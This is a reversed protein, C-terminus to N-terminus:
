FQNCDEFKDDPMKITNLVDQRNVLLRKAVSEPYPETFTSEWGYKREFEERTSYIRRTCEDYCLKCEKNMAQTPRDKLTKLIIGRPDEEDKNREVWFMRHCLNAIESAGSIDYSNAGNQMANPKKPHAVIDTKVKFGNTFSMVKVIFDKQVDWKSKKSTEDLELCMLNDILFVECGFRRYAIEMLKILDDGSAVLGDEPAFTIIKERYYEKIKKVANKHVSFGKKGGDNDWVLTHNKGALSSMIWDLLQEGSLEGSFVFVKQGNEVASIVSIQNALTSKGSGTFGSYITLCPFVNGFIIKDLEELGTSVKKMDQVNAPEFDMLYKLNKVPIEEARNILEIIREKGIALLINNADTKRLNKVKFQEYFNEVLDEDDITPKVIKCRYEGIRPVTKELGEQGASDNDFWLIITNFNELFDYNFEIWSTSTAGDPISVVNTYGSEIVALTDPMGETIVLPKTFDLKKVNYLLPVKDADKQWWCKHEEKKVKRSPRYKVALLKDDLDRFEFAINGVKDEKVEAYKLTQESIGRSKFYKIVNEQTLEKEPKPYKYNDFNYTRQNDFPRFSFINNDMHAAKFLENIGSKMSGTIDIYYDLISYVKSCGFCKMTHTKKNWIFSPTSENHFPCCAHGKSDIEIDLHKAIIDLADDGIIDKAEQLLEILNGENQM